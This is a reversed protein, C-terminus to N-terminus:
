RLTPLAREVAPLVQEAVAQAISDALAVSGEVPVVIRVLAEESRGWRAKDRLLEWKVAYENWAVRGRGQYWYYVLALRPGNALEYRNVRISDGRGAHWVQVDDASLPEWGAGPLCNKPSHITRGQHQARYYGVYLSFGLSSDPATFLRLVYDDMGAVRQEAPSIPVDEAEYGLLATPLSDLPHALPMERQGQVRTLGLGGLVLIAVPLYMTLGTKTM